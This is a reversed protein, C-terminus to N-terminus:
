ESGDAMYKILEKIQSGIASARLVVVILPPPTARLSIGTVIKRGHASPALSHSDMGETLGWVLLTNFHNISVYSPQQQQDDETRVCSVVFSSSM